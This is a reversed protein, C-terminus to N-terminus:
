HKQGSMAPVDFSGATILDALTLTYCVGHAVTAWAM